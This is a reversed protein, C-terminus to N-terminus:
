KERDEERNRANTEREEKLGSFQLIRSMGASNSPLSRGFAEDFEPDFLLLLLAPTFKYESLSSLACFLPAQPPHHPHISRQLRKQLRSDRQVHKEKAQLKRFESTMARTTTRIDTIELRRRKFSTRRVNQRAGDIRDFIQMHRSRCQRSCIQNVSCHGTQLQHAEIM